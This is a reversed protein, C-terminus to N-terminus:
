MLPCTNYLTYLDQYTFAHGNVVVTISGDNNYIVKTNDNFRLQGEVTRNLYYDYKIPIDTIVTFAGEFCLNDPYLDVSFFAM